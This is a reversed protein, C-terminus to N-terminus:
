FYLENEIINHKIAFATAAVRSSVGLKNFINSMHRDVTRESIFLEGAVSKNTKGSAVRRLVQLERLTLGHIEHDQEKNILRNVRELDPKAELQEFVWKAAVLEMNTGDKDGLEQYVLGILEKTRASEYPLYLTDWGKSAMQLHELAQRFDGEAFLVTGLTYSSMNHLYPVDFTNAIKCLEEAAMRAEETRKIIIMITVVAPLLEARAKTNNTEKLTNRISTEAADAQGQVLRLLALGPQPKRGWKAAERYRDEAREFDGLLRHLEAERYYAEGAAPEGPPRTLLQSANQTEVLAKPWEGHFQMIEARRVLCQGRFPVLDPQSDCWRSLATTWEKCRNLDWVKRCTEIVACYAIGCVVPFIERTEVAIMVEDLLKMGQVIHGQQIMAQGKGLRGLTILDPDDFSEGIKM